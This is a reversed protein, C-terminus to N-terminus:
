DDGSATGEPFDAVLQHEHTGERYMPYTEGLGYM